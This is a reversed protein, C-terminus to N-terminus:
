AFRTSVAGLGEIWGEAADGPAAHRLGTLSGTVVVMGAGLGGCHGGVRRAFAAFTAFADGGPTAAPGEQVTRGGIRLRVRRHSLDLGRWDRVPEGLILGGNIQFDALKWLAGAAEPDALRSEVIEFVPLAVVREALRAAFAPEAPDPPDAELRFGIELEVGRLRSERPEPTAGSPLIAAARVPAMIPEAAPDRRGTKFGGVPGLAAAVLAQAEYAAAAGAPGDEPRGAVPAGGRWAGLLRAGAAAAGAAGGAEEDGEM